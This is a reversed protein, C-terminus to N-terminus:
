RGVAEWDAQHAEINKSSLFQRHAGDPNMTALGTRGVGNVFGNDLFLIKKDDPSWIPDAQGTPDHTINTPTGGAAGVVYIDGYAGNPYGEFVIRKGNPAWDSDDVRLSFPTLRHVSGGALRVTFLAAPARVATGRARTFLLQTGDPSFRPKYDSFPRTPHTLRRIKGGNASVLYIASFGKASGRDSDFALSKGNRAWATDGNVGRSDTLKRVGSGDPRMVFVDNVHKSDHPTRDTRNSDFALRKGNPSWVPWGSDYHGHTLKKAGSLDANAVWIQWHGAQDKVMYAIRGNKGPLTAAALPTM